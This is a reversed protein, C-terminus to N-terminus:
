KKKIKEGRVFPSLGHQIRLECLRGDIDNTWRDLEEIKKDIDKMWQTLEELMEIIKAM